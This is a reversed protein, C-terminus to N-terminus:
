IVKWASGNSQVGVGVAGGGAVTAGWSPASADTVYAIAGAGVGSASPLTAVTYGGPKITGTAAISGTVDVTVTPASTGGFRSNGAFANNATGAMYANWRGSAADIAGYFGANFAAGTLNSNAFFGFQSTLTAGAGITSQTARYYYANALTYSGAALTLIANYIRADSTVDSQVIPELSMASATTAGTLNKVQRHNYGTVSTTGHGINGNSGEMHLRVSAATGLSLNKNVDSFIFSHGSADTRIDLDGVTNGILIRAGAAGSNKFVGQTSDSNSVHVAYSPSIGFGAKGGFVVGYGGGDISVKDSGNVGILMVETGAAINGSLYYANSLRVNASNVTVKADIGLREVGGVAIGISNSGKRFIGTDQDAAFSIGPTGVLGDGFKGAGAGSLMASYEVVLQTVAAMTSQAFGQTPIVLHAGLSAVTGGQYTTSLTISTASNVSLVEYVRGDPLIVGHGAQVNAVWDTGAGTLAASGNAVAITGTKYWAM